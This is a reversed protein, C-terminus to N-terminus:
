DFLAALEKLGNDICVAVVKDGEIVQTNGNILYGKGGRILGGLNASAPLKLDKVLKKTIKSNPAATFEAVDANAVMLSKVNSVDAKLIMRYINSASIAQKNILTGIDLSEAMSLFNLNDLMAVTKNVGMKKATLCSIINVESNPTLAIFADTDDLNEEHMLSLDRGDGHIVMVNSNTIQKNLEYCRNIDQEVIKIKMDSPLMQATFVATTGGGMIIVDEVQTYEDKGCITRIFDQNRKDTMFYVLDYPRIIDDGHPILTDAGRKIAVVHYAADQNPLAKLPVNLIKCNQRVKVGILALNGGTGDPEWWMRAWSREVSSAIEKAAVMEPIFMSSIGMEKFYEQSDKGLHEVSNVRAVTRKAGLRGAMMCCNINLDEDPTVGVFLDSHSVGIEKLGTISAPSMVKVMLDYNVQLANLKEANEDLVIIDHNERAFLKALHTGVRGAGAIIIKM